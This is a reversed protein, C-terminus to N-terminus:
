WRCCIAFAANLIWRRPLRGYPLSCMVLSYPFCCHLVLQVVECLGQLVWAPPRKRRHSTYQRPLSSFLEYM